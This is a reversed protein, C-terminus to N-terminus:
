ATTAQAKRRLSRKRAIAVGALGLLSSGLMPLASPLPVASVATAIVVEGSMAVNQFSPDYYAQPSVTAGQSCVDTGTAQDCYYHSGSYFTQQFLLHGYDLGSYNFLLDSATASLDLGSVDVGSNAKTLLYSDAGSVLNLAWGTINGATLVGTTGDTEITGVVSGTGITRDIKYTVSAAHSAALPTACAILLVVPLYRTRLNRM